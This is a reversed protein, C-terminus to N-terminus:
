PRASEHLSRRGCLSRLPRPTARTPRSRFDQDTAFRVVALLPWFRPMQPRRWFALAGSLLAGFISLALMTMNLLGGEFVGLKELRATRDGGLIRISQETSFRDHGAPVPARQARLPFARIRRLKILFVHAVIVVAVPVRERLDLRLHGDVRQVIEPMRLDDVVDMLLAGIFRPQENRRVHIRDLRVDIRNENRPHVRKAELHGPSQHRL